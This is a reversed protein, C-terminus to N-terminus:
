PDPNSAESDGDVPKSNKEDSSPSRPRLLVEKIFVTVPQSRVKFKSGDAAVFEREVEIKYEGGMTMDWIRSVLYQEAHKEGPDLKLRVLLNVSTQETDSEEGKKADGVVSRGYETLLVPRDGPRTVNWDIANNTGRVWWHASQDGFNEWEVNLRVHQDVGIPTESVAITCRVDAAPQNETDEELQAQSSSGATVIVVIVM